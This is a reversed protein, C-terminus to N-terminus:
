SFFLSLLKFCYSCWNDPDLLLSKYAIIKEVKSNEIEAEYFMRFDKLLNFNDVKYNIKKYENLKYEIVQLLIENHYLSLQSYDINQSDVAQFYIRNNSLDFINSTSSIKNIKDVAYNFDFNTKPYEYLSYVFAMSLYNDQNDAIAQINSSIFKKNNDLLSQQLKSIFANM